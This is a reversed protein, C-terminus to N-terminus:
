LSKYFDASMLTRAENKRGESLYFEVFKRCDLAEEAKQIRGPHFLIELQCNKRKMIRKFDPLVKKIREEDMFGSFWVGMFVNKQIGLCQIEKRDMLYLFNLLFNKLINVPKYTKYLSPHKVFPIIPEAPIRLTDLQVQQARLVKCLTQFVGPIMHVHQHSDLGITKTGMLDCFVCLQKEIEIGIQEQVAKRRKSLLQFFLGIFSYRFYGDADVLLNVQDPNSLCKGEVLNLHLRVKLGEKKVLAEMDECHGNPFLSVSDLYGKEWCELIKYSSDKGMGYDDAHLWIKKTEEMTNM